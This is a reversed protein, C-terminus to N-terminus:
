YEKLLQRIRAAAARDEDIRKKKWYFDSLAHHASGTCGGSRVCSYDSCSKFCADAKQELLKLEKDSEVVEEMDLLIVSMM